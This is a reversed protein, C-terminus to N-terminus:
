KDGVDASSAKQFRLGLDTLGFWQNEERRGYVMNRAFFRVKSVLQSTRWPLFFHQHRSFRTMMRTFIHKVKIFKTLVSQEFFLCSVSPFLRMAMSHPAHSCMLSSTRSLAVSSSVFHTRSFKYGFLPNWGRYDSSDTTELSPLVSHGLGRLACKYRQM